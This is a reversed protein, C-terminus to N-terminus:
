CQWLGIGEVVNRIESIEILNEFNLAIETGGKFDIGLELGRVVFSILSLGILIGSVLFTIKRLGLFDINLDDLLRM